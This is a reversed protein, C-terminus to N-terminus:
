GEDETGLDMPQPNAFLHEATLGPAILDAKALIDIVEQQKEKILSVLLLMIGTSAVDEADKFPVVYRVTGSQILLGIGGHENTIVEVEGVILKPPMERKSEMESM